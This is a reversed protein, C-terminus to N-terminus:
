LAVCFLPKYSVFFFSFGLFPLSYDSGKKKRTHHLYTPPEPYFPM